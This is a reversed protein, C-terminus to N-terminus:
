RCENGAQLGMGWMDYIGFREADVEGARAAWWAEGATLFRGPPQDYPDMSRLDDLATPMDALQPSAPLATMPSPSQYFGADESRM